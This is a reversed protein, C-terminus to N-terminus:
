RVGVKKINESVMADAIKTADSLEPAPRVERDLPSARSASYYSWSVVFTSFLHDTSEKNTKWVLLKRVSIQGKTEKTWVERRVLVSATAAEDVKNESDSSIPLYASIQSFRIDTKAVTKDSRIQLMVPHLARAAKRMGHGQWDQPTLSLAQSTTQSGDSRDAQL